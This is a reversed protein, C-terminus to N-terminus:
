ILIGEAKCQDFFPKYGMKGNDIQMLDNYLPNAPANAFLLAFVDVDVTVGGGLDIRGVSIKNKFVNEVDTKTM